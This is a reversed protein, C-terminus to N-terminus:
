SVHSIRWVLVKVLTVAQEWWQDSRRLRTRTPSERVHCSPRTEGRFIQEAVGLCPVWAFEVEGWRWGPRQERVLRARAWVVPLSARPSPAPSFPSGLMWWCTPSSPSTTAPARGYDYPPFRTRSPSPPPHRSPEQQGASDDMFINVRTTPQKILPSIEPVANENHGGQDATLALHQENALVIGRLIGGQSFRHSHVWETYPQGKLSPSQIIPAGKM